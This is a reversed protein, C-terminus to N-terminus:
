QTTNKPLASEYHREGGLPIIPVTLSNPCGQLFAPPTYRCHVLMGDLSLLLVLQNLVPTLHWCQHAMMMMGMTPFERIHAIYTHAVGFNKLWKPRDLIPYTKPSNPITKLLLKNDNM